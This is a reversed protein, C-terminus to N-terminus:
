FKWFKSNTINSSMIIKNLRQDYNAEKIERINEISIDEFYFSVTQVKKKLGM